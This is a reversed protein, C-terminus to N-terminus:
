AISHRAPACPPLTQSTVAALSRLERLGELHVFDADVTPTARTKECVFFFCQVNACRASSFYARWAAISGHFIMGRDTWPHGQVAELFEQSALLLECANRTTSFPLLAPGAEYPLTGQEGGALQVPM